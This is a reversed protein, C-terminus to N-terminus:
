RCLGTAGPPACCGARSKHLVGAAVSCQRGAHAQRCLKHSAHSLRYSVMEAECGLPSQQVQGKASGGGEM